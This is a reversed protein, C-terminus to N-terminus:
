KDLSKWRLDHGKRQWIDGAPSENGDPHCEFCSHDDYVYNNVDDHEDALSNQNTHCTTTCSFDSVDGGIHCDSCEDWENRHEGSYIPFYLQDHNFEADDWDSTNHCDACSTPFGSAQHDPDDANQYESEHCFFCDSPTGSYQGDIHCELCSVSTHAGTLPFDTNNHNFDADDWDSTNHCVTCDHDFQQAVHDPDDAGEYDTQHCSWCDSPTGEYQGGIHCNACSVTVHAGTLPFDTADHDFTAPEWAETTHCAACDQSFQQAQHNPDTTEEYQTQHCSWCDSPTGEYQGGIHCNACSVTVHAGTLPFDTADHDFTAPEWAETTHCAACDQSFQQAQHNPDTTEEYQTQHCSWCDSPTGDFQGGIHCDACSVTVHAGTLQFDTADHDFTAPEWADVSHCSACDQAFQAAEHDPDTTEAYDSQHCSWCDSPTELYQGGIHCDACSIDQHGGVLQFDTTAHDFAPEWAKDTHCVMCDQPFQEDQHNPDNSGEYDTQHCSWCDFPTNMYQGDTHCEACSVTIHAGTLPFDSESHDFEAPQWAAITHCSTCDQNYNGAEHDPDTVASYDSQHCSWCDSATGEYVAGVHCASCSVETHAGALPYDTTNHDFSSPTWGSETHCAMCDRSFSPESHAPETASTFDQNHCSWCDSATNEWSSTHCATCSTSEHSGNLAFGLQDHDFITNGWADQDHCMVCDQPYGFSEHQPAQAFEANHCFMCDSQTSQYSNNQHCSLCDLSQHAGAITYGTEQAHGWDAPRWGQDSHCQSCEATLAAPEHDPNDASLLDQNHCVACSTPTDDFSNDSHCAVCGADSHAGNLPFFTHGDFRGENWRDTTHCSECDTNFGAIHHDPDSANQFDAEHCVACESASGSFQSFGSGTHCAACDLERHAGSLPFSGRDHRARQEDENFWEDPTHCASCDPDLSGEHVDIHCSACDTPTGSYVQADHCLICDSWAHAGELPWGTDRGHDFTADPSMKWGATSHCVKCDLDLQGHPNEAALAVPQRVLLLLFLLINM